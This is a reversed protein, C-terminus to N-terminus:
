NNNKNWEQQELKSLFTWAIIRSVKNGQIMDLLKIETAGLKELSAQMSKIHSINSVLSTFWFCQKKFQSSEYLYNHLFAKEGGKYSIEKSTGSFNRVVKDQQKGLGKLKIETAEIADRESKYFPPNCMTATFKDSAKIINKLIHMEDNQFRLEISKDLNNRDVITQGSQLSNPEIDTGVFKWNYEAHGLLPYICTAGAGIDLIKVDTAFHSRKLLEALHHIYDARGPIPPCLNEDPFEWFTINYHNFLLAKNLAKVAKPNAFDITQTQYENEFVFPRLVECRQTLADFDYKNNHINNKHLPHGQIQIRSLNTKM